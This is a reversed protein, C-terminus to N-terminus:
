EEFSACRCKCDTAENVNTLSSVDLYTCRCHNENNINDDKEKLKGLESAVGGIIHQMEEKNLNEM